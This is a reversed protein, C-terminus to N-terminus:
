RIPWEPAVPRRKEVDAYAVEPDPTPTPAEAGYRRALESAPYFLEEELTTHVKLDECTSLILQRCTEADEERDMKEFEKFAKEVKAHDEKLLELALPSKSRSKPM